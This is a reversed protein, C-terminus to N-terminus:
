PIAKKLAAGLSQWSDRDGLQTAVHSFRGLHDVEHISLLLRRVPVQFRSIEQQNVALDLHAVEALDHIQLNELGAMLAAAVGNVPCRLNKVALCACGGILVTQREKILLQESALSWEQGIRQVLEHGLM